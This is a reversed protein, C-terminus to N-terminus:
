ALSADMRAGVLRNNRRSMLNKQALDFGRLSASRPPVTKVQALNWPYKARNLPDDACMASANKKVL